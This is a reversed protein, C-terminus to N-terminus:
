IFVRNIVASLEWITSGFRPPFDQIPKLALKEQTFIVFQLCMHFNQYNYRNLFFNIDREIQEIIKIAVKCTIGFM